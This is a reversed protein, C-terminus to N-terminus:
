NFERDKNRKCNRKIFLENLRVRRSKRMVVQEFEFSSGGGRAWMLMCQFDFTLLKREKANMETVFKCFNIVFPFSLYILSEQQSHMAAAAPNVSHNSPNKPSVPIFASLSEDGVLESWDYGNWNLKIFKILVM